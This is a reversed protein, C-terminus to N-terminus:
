SIWIPEEEASMWALCTMVTVESHACGRSRCKFAHISFRGAFLNVALFYGIDAKASELFVSFADRSHGADPTRGRASAHMPCM